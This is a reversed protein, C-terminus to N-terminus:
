AKAIEPKDEEDESSLDSPDIDVGIWDKMKDMPKSTKTSSSTGNKKIENQIDDTTELKRKKAENLGKILADDIDEAIKKKQEDYKPDHFDHKLEQERKRRERKEEKELEKQKERETKREILEKLRKDRNATRIRRGTLDRCADKNTSKTIQKGFSRLLSGFGGKGGFVKPIVLLTDGSNISAEKKLDIGNLSALVFNKYNFRNVITEILYDRTIANKSDIEFPLLSNSGFKINIKM